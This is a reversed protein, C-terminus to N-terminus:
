TASDGVRIALLAVDDDRESLATAQELELRLAETLDEATRAGAAARGVFREVTEADLDYPPPRDTIGDTYLLLADGPGLETTVPEASIEDFVGMLTGVAGVSETSGDARAVIPFPHGASTATYRFRGGPLATLTSYVVTAFRDRHGHLMADNLWHLVEVHGNGHRAAARITHRAIVVVAAADPGTGCVDGIVVAWESPGLPFVDYFDGGVETHVGAAWYRSAVTVGPVEPLAPPLLASQLTRAIHRDRQQKWMGDLAVAVRDAALEALSLDSRTYRRGSGAVVFQLAGIVGRKTRLPVTIVSELGLEDLLASIVAPDIPSAEVAARLYEEDVQPVFEVQGSRIVASAGVPSNPNEGYKKRLGQLWELRTADMHAVGTHAIVGAEPQFRLLAWDGLRPVAANVVEDIYERYDAIRLAADSLTALFALRENQEQEHAALEAVRGAYQELAREAAKRETFDASCGIAGVIEGDEVLVRGWAHVWHETGDPWTVQQEVVYPEGTRASDDMQRAIAASTEPDRGTSWEDFTKPGGGPPLGYLREMTADWTIAGTRKDWSWTGLGGASLALQLRATVDDV